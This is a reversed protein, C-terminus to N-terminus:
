SGALPNALTVAQGDRLKVQGATVVVDDAGLGDVIEVRGPRRLGLEVRTLRAVGDVIRYVFREGGLPVIAEEPVILARERRSVVLSIRAFLGPRLVGDPNPVRARIAISRGGTDVLPDFAYVRGEFSRGPFADVQVALQQDVSVAPLYREPVRFDVKIPHISELNVLHQGALVYDGISVRRLGVIGAFPAAIRTKALRVKALAVAAVDNDLTWRAEDLARATGAGGRHLETARDYNRQSLRLKAEAQVLEASVVSDDLSFLPAAEAVATGETFHISTIRGAIEPRVIVSENSLLSGVASVDTAVPAVEVRVADVIVAAPPQQAWARRAALPEGGVAGFAASLALAFALTRRGASGASREPM